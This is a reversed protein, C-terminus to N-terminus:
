IELPVSTEFFYDFTWNLPDIIELGCKPCPVRVRMDPGAAVENTIRNIRIRDIKDMEDLDRDDVDM